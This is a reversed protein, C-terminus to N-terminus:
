CSNRLLKNKFTTSRYDIYPQEKEISVEKVQCEIM